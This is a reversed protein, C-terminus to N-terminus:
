GGGRLIPFLAAGAPTAGTAVHRQSHNQRILVELAFQLMRSFPQLAAPDEAMEEPTPLDPHHALIQVYLASVQFAPM